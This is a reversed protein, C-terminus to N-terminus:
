VGKLDNWTLPGKKMKEDLATQLGTINAITHTHSSPTFTSPKETIGTWPVSDAVEAMDVKGNNNKDYISKLMDGNGAGSLEQKTAFTEDVYTKDAKNGVTNWKAREASTIHKVTDTIHSVANNWSDILTQTIKDLITKNDHTHKRNNSDNWNTREESTIHKIINSDHNDTYEKAIKLANDAKAQSGEPTEKTNWKEKEVDTVFRKNANPVIIDASHTAPHIYKNAEAEIGLLKQKEETTYDETSLGKGQEKDVKTSLLNIINTAFNPDNDLATALKELTDLAEPAAGIIEQIKQLVEEKTFVNDKNAKKNLETDVYTKNAKNNELTTARNKLQKIERNNSDKYDNLNNSTDVIAEQLENIDEAEVQDGTTEYTVYVKESNSFIKLHTKWPTESPTSIFFNEVKEGTYKSGTYISISQHNVNDHDLFGEWKGETIVKEEEIIYVGSPKKNLKEVFM